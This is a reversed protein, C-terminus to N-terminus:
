KENGGKFLAIGTHISRSMFFLTMFILGLLVIAYLSIQQGSLNWSEVFKFALASGNWRVTLVNKSLPGLLEYLFFRYGLVVFIFSLIMTLVQRIFVNRSKGALDSNTSDASVRTANYTGGKFLAIGTHICRRTFYIAMFILGLFVAVYSTWLPIQWVTTRAIARLNWFDVFKFALVSGNWSVTLVDKSLPGLLGYIFFHYGLVVFIISLITTLVQRIFVMVHRTKGKLYSNILDASVHTDNYAGYAGGLFYLWFAILKVWEEYGFLDGEHVYRTYAAATIIISLLLSCFVMMIEFCRIVIRDFLTNPIFVGVEPQVTKNDIIQEVNEPM